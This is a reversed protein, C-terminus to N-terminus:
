KVCKKMRENVGMIECKESSKERMEDSVWQSVWGSMGKLYELM